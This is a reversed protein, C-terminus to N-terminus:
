GTRQLDDLQRFSPDCFHGGDIAGAPLTVGAMRRVLGIDPAIKGTGEAMRFM